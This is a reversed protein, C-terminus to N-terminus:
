TAFYSITNFSLAVARMQHIVQLCVGHALTDMVKEGVGVIKRGAVELLLYL